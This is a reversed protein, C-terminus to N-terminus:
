PFGTLTDHSPQRIASAGPLGATSNIAQSTTGGECFAAVGTPDDLNAIGVRVVGSNVFCQRNAIVCTELPSVNCFTCELGQCDGDVICSKFSHVSCTGYTPGSTCQGENAGNPDLPNERCDALHCFGTPCDANTACLNKDDGGSSVCAAACDTPKQAVGGGNPCYCQYNCTGPTCDANTACTKGENPAGVCTKFGFGFADCQINPRFTTSATTLPNWLVDIGSGSINQGPPPPCDESTTGFLQTAGGHPPTNRCAKDLNPGFSCIPDTTCPVDAGRLPGEKCDDDTTCLNRAGGPPDGCFGGCVPCPQQMSPGLHTVSAQRMRIATAGTALDKTGVIDESFGNVVCVSVGGGSLPLPAGHLTRLCYNNIAYGGTCGADNVCAVQIDLNCHPGTATRRKRCPGAGNLGGCQGDNACAGHPSGTCSPGVTCLTDPGGPGDCDYLDAVFGAGEVVGADHSQGNWGNDLDGEKKEFIRVRPINTCLCAFLGTGCLGPCTSADTGDCEEDFGNVVNDGCAPQKTYEFDILTAKLISPNDAADGHSTVICNEAGAETSAGCSGGPCESAVTCPQGDNTGGVCAGPCVDLSDVLPDPCKKFIQARAKSEAKEIAVQTKSTPDNTACSLGALGVITGNNVGNRCKQVAKLKANTFKAGNKSIAQQCKFAEKVLDGTIGGYEAEVLEDVIATHSTRECYELDAATFSDAVNLDPCKGPFQMETPGLEAVGFTGCYKNITETLAAQLTAITAAPEGVPCEDAPISNLSLDLCKQKKKLAKAVFKGGAKGVQEICKIHPKTMLAQATSAAAGLVLVAVAVAGSIRLSRTM